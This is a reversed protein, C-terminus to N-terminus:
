LNLKKFIKEPISKIILMIWRWMWLVYVVNKKKRYAHYVAKAVQQPQATLPKPLPLGETMKTDVFGPKITAVHVGSKVLRNRLGSLYATFAAKASGYVYNSQRGRDGAVSSIGIITGKKASAYHNAIPNLLSVAGKYNVNIIKEAEEWKEQAVKQEGLYGFVCITILPIEPLSKWFDQHTSFENADFQFTNVPVRFRISLDSKLPDLAQMNRAALFVPHGKEAFFYAIAEGIDSTAGLVLVTEM